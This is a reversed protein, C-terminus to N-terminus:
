WENNADQQGSADQYGQQASVVDQQVDQYGTLDQYGGVGVVGLVSLM